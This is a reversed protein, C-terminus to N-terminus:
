AAKTGYIVYAVHEPNVCMRVGCAQRTEEHPHMWRGLKWYVVIAAAPFPNKYGRVQVGPYGKGVIPGTWLHCTETKNVRREFSARFEPSDFIAFDAPGLQRRQRGRPM